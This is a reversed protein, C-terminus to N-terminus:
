PLEARMSGTRDRGRYLYHPPVARRACKVAAIATRFSGFWRRQLVDRVEWGGDYRVVVMLTAQHGGEYGAVLDFGKATDRWVWGTCARLRM